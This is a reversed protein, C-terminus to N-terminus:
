RSGKQLKSYEECAKVCKLLADAKKHEHDAQTLNGLQINRQTEQLATGILGLIYYTAEELGEIVPVQPSRLASRIINVDEVAHVRHFCNDQNFIADEELRDIAELAAKRQEEIMKKRKLNTLMRGKGDMTIDIELKSRVDTERHEGVPLESLRPIFDKEDFTMVCPEVITDM